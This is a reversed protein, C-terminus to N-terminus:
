ELRGATDTAAHEEGFFYRATARLFDYLTTSTMRELESWVGHLAVLWPRARCADHKRMPLVDSKRKAKKPRQM